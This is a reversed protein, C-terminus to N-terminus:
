NLNSYYKWMAEDPIVQTSRDLAGLGERADRWPDEHHTMYELEWGTYKAFVDLIVDIQDKARTPLIPEYEPVPLPNRGHKKYHHYTSPHVPGHVWAQFQATFLPKGDNLALYWAQTYYLLKQLKLNTVVDGYEGLKWLIYEAVSSANVKSM